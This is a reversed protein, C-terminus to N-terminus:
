TGDHSRSIDSPPAARFASSRQWDELGSVLQELIAESTQVVDRRWAHDAPCFSDFLGERLLRSKESSEKRFHLWRDLRLADFMEHPPKTGFEIVVGCFERATATERLANFLLGRYSPRPRNGPGGSISVNAEGWWSQARRFERSQYDNFCLFFARGREGIGTHIDILGIREARSAHRQVISGFVTNSWTPGTGGYFLGDQFEYQGRGLADWLAGEGYKSKYKEAEEWFKSRTRGSWQKPCLYEHLQAYIDNKPLNSWDNMFNRNLDINEVTTRHLNAFGWPNIAHILLIGINSSRAFSMGGRLWNLQVASGCFGEIGHTGSVVVGITEAGPDGIHLVDCALSEEYHYSVHATHIGAKRLADGAELFKQRSIEYRDSFLHQLPM